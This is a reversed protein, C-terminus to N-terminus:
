GGQFRLVAEWSVPPFKEGLSCSATRPALSRASPCPVPLGAPRVLQVPGCGAASEGPLQAQRWSSKKHGDHVRAPDARPNGPPTEKGQRLDELPPVEM